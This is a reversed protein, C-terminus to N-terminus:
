APALQRDHGALERRHDRRAHRDQPAEVHELLVVSFSFSFPDQVLHALVDLGADRHRVRELLVGVGEVLEVDRHGAGTLRRSHELLRQLPDRVLQLLAVRQLALDPGRHGVRHHDATKAARDHQQGQDREQDRHELLDELVEVALQGHDGPDADAHGVEHGALPVQQDRITAPM